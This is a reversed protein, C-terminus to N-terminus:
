QVIDLHISYWGFNILPFSCVQKVNYKLNKSTSRIFLSLICSSILLEKIEQKLDANADASIMKAVTKLVGILM